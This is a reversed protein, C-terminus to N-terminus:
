KIPRENSIKGDKIYVTRNMYKAMNVDHTVMIVSKGSKAIEAFLEMTNKATESDLAGTPEDALIIDPDKIIARAIAVRQRQGGSLTKVKRKALEEIGLSELTTYVRRKADKMSSGKMFYLPMEVNTMVSESPLLGYSQLVFGIKDGRLRAIENDNMNHVEKGDFYYEGSTMNDMCGIVNLLTSKGSGSVGMVALSEGRELTFDVSDLAVVENSKGKNYIKSVNNMRILESM